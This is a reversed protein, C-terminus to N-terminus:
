AALVRALDDDDREHELDQVGLHDAHVAAVVLVDFHVAAARVAPASEKVLDLTLVVRGEEHHELLEELHERQRRHERVTHEHHVAAEEATVRDLHLM